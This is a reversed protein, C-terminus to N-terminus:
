ADIGWFKLQRDLGATVLWQASPGFGVGTVASKHGDYTAVVDWQRRRSSASTKAKLVRVDDAAIALYTGSHDFAVSGVASGIDLKKVCGNNKGLKRLDWIIASGDTSGTAATFGNESFCLSTVAASHQL